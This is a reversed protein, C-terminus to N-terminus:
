DVISYLVNQWVTRQYMTSTKGDQPLIEVLLDKQL